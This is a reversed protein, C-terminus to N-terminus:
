RLAMMTSMMGNLANPNAIGHLFARTNRDATNELDMLEFGEEQFWNMFGQVGAQFTADDAYFNTVLYSTSADLGEPAPPPPQCGVLLPLAVIFLSISATNRYMRRERKTKSTPLTPM